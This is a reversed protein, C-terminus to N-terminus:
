ERNGTLVVQGGAVSLKIATIKGEARSFIVDADYGEVTASFVDKTSGSKLIYVTAPKDDPIAALQGDKMAIAIKKVYENDAMKFSAVYDDLSAGSDKVGTVVQGQAEIKLGKVVGAERTFVLTASMSELTFEDATKGATLESEPFGEAAMIIKSDKVSITVSKVYPNESLKFTGAYDAPNSQALMQVASVCIVFALSFLKKM